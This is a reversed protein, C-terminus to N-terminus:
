ARRAKFEAGITAITAADLSRAARPFVQEEEIRIHEEYLKRLRETVELLRAEEDQPLGHGAHWMAYLRVTEEHLAEAEEHESELREMEAHLLGSALKRLRPFVSEEEDRNHRPGSERFYRVAGEVASWEEWTLARGQARRAVEGLVRVFFQIRRHCDQLMGLPDSFGSDPKAGIQVPM